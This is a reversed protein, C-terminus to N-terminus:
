LSVGCEYVTCLPCYIDNCLHVHSYWEHYLAMIHLVHIHLIVKFNLPIGFHIHHRWLCTCSCLQHMRTHAWAHLIEKREATCIYDLGIAHQTTTPANKEFEHHCCDHRTRERLRAKRLLWPLRPQPTVFSCCTGSAAWGILIRSERVASLVNEPFSGECTLKHSPLHCISPIGKVISERRLELMNWKLRSKLLYQEM